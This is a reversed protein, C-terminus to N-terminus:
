KAINIKHVKAMVRVLRDSSLKSTSKGLLWCLTNKAICLMEGNNNQVKVYKSNEDIENPDTKVAFLKLNMNNLFHFKHEYQAGDITEPSNDITNRPVERAITCYKPKPIVCPLDSDDSNKLHMGLTEAYEIAEIKALEIEEIIEQASPLQVPKKSQDIGNRNVYPYYSSSVVGIRPFKFSKLKIHSIENQLEIKAMRHIVELLSCNTVTSYTSTLSRIQRFISECQQSGLMQPHFVNDLSQQKLYLILMVMSHANIEVCTYCNQSIFNDKLSNARKSQQIFKKWIRLIFVSFYILRIRESPLLRLDLFARLVNSLVKLYLITGESGEINSLLEIVKDDCIRLVSDFNQRDKPSITSPCLNHDAKSYHKLVLELHKTSVDYKGMKLPKNLIRNRMKTGIHVTDQFPIYKTSISHVNANFWTPFNINNNKNWGLELHNKMVANFKPDSDSAFTAVTIGKKKLEDSIFDWRKDIDISTYKADSGFLLLCFPPIGVALPQAMVVNLFSAQNKEQGTQIDYFCKEMQAASCAKNFGVIPMGNEGLPLVFGVLQNTHRDYQIRNTIRTADESLAVIKPLKLATLYQSLEETRLLGEFVNSQVKAIFRDVTPLSPLSRQANAKLTEYALKGSLMRIYAAYFKLEDSHRYGPASRSINQKFGSTMRTLFTDEASETNNRTNMDM